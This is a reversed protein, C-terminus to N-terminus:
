QQPSTGGPYWIQLVTYQCQTLYSAGDYCSWSGNNYKVRPYLTTASVLPASPFSANVWAEGVWTSIKYAGKEVRTATGYNFYTTVTGLSISASSSYRCVTVDMKIEYQGVWNSTIYNFQYRRQECRTVGLALQPILLAVLIGLVVGRYARRM